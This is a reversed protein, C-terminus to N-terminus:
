IERQRYNPFSPVRYMWGIYALSFLSAPYRERGHREKKRKREKKKKEKGQRDHNM